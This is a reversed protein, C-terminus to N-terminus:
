RVGTRYPPIDAFLRRLAYDVASSLDQLPEAGPPLRYRQITVALGCSRAHQGKPIQTRETPEGRGAVLQAPQKAVDVAATLISVDRLQTLDDSAKERLRGGDVSLVFPEAAVALDGETLGDDAFESCGSQLSPPGVRRPVTLRRM